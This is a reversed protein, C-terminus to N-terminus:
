ETRWSRRSTRVLRSIAKRTEIIKGSVEILKDLRIRETDFYAEDLARAVQNINRGLAALERTLADLVSLEPETLVPPYMLNSQILSSTWRSFSMGKEDARECAAKMLFAPMWVTKRELHTDEPVEILQRNPASSATEKSERVANFFELLALRLLDSESLGRAEREALFRTHLQGKLRAKVIPSPGSKTSM